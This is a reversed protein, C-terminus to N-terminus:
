GCNKKHLSAFFGGNDVDYLIWTSSCQKQGLFSKVKLPSNPVYDIYLSM